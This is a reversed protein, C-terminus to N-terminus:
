DNRDLEMLNIVFDKQLSRNKYYFFWFVGREGGNIVRYFLTIKGRKRM